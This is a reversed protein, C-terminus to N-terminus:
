TGRMQNLHHVGARPHGTSAATYNVVVDIADVEWTAATGKGTQTAQVQVQMGNLQTQTWDTTWTQTTGTATYNAHSGSLAPTVYTTGQPTGGILLDVTFTDKGSAGTSRGRIVIDVSTVTDADSVATADLDIIVIDDDVTTSLVAADPSGTSEDIDLYSGTPWGGDDGNPYLTDTAM